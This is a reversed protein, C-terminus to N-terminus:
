NLSYKELYADLNEIFEEDTAKIDRVYSHVNYDGYELELM